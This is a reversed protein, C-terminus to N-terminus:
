LIVIEQKEHCSGENEVEEFVKVGLAISGVNGPLVFSKQLSSFVM